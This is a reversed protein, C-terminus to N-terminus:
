KSLFLTLSILVLAFLLPSLAEGNSIIETKWDDINKVLLEKLRRDGGGSICDLSVGLIEVIFCWAICKGHYVSELSRTCSAKTPKSCFIEDLGSM